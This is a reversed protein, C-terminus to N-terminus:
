TEKEDLQKQIKKVHNEIEQKREELKNIEDNTRKILKDTIFGVKQHDKKRQVLKERSETIMGKLKLYGQAKKEIMNGTQNTVEDDVAKFKKEDEEIMKDAEEMQDTLQKKQEKLEELMETLSKIQQDIIKQDKNRKELEEELRAAPILKMQEESIKKLKKVKKNQKKMWIIFAVGLVVMVVLIVNFSISVSCSSENIFFDDPVHIHTERSQNIDRQQVRCTFNNNNRKEVTVRSSVTYVGDPDTSKEAAGASMINGDGDLWFMEPEPYWGAASCDLMVGSSSVDLGSLSAGPSSASGVLLDVSDAKMEKPNYCRFRGNDSHKVATLRLSVDGDKLRDTFLSTRGKYATNKENVNESGEFWMFVFRPNLDLRGWELVLEDPNVSGGLHCPLVVDDGLMAAVLRPRETQLSQGKCSDVLLIFGFMLEAFFPKLSLRQPIHAM